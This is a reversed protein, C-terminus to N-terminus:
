VPSMEDFLARQQVSMRERDANAFVLASGTINVLVGTATFSAEGFHGARLLDVTDRTFVCSERLSAAAETRNGNSVQQINDSISELARASLGIGATKLMSNVAGVAPIYVSGPTCNNNVIDALADRRALGPSQSGNM